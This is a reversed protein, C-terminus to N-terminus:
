RDEEEYQEHHDEQSTTQLSKSTQRTQTSMPSGSLFRVRRWTRGRGGTFSEIHLSLHLSEFPSYVVWGLFRLFVVVQGGVSVQLLDELLYILRGDVPSTTCVVIISEVLSLLLFGNTYLYYQTHSM